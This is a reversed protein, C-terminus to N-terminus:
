YDKHEEKPTNAKQKKFQSNQPMSLPKFGPILTTTRVFNNKLSGQGNRVVNLTNKPSSEKNLKKSKSIKLNTNEQIFLMTSKKKLMGKMIDRANQRTTNGKNSASNTANSVKSNTRIM